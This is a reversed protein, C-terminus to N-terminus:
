IIRRYPALIEKIVKPIESFSYSTNQEGFSRSSTGHLNGEFLVKKLGVLEMCAMKLDAPIDAQAYGYTYQFRWNDQGETFVCGDTFYVKGTALDTTYTGTTVTWATGTWYAVASIQIIPYQKLYISNTGDGNRIEYIPTVIKVFKRGCYNEIWKSSSNILSEMRLQLQMDDALLEPIGLYAQAEEISVLSITPDLSM